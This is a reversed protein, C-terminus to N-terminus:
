RIRILTPAAILRGKQRIPEYEGSM